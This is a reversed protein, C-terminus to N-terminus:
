DQDSRALGKANTQRTEAKRGMGQDVPNISEHTENELREADQEIKVCVRQYMEIINMWVPTSPCAEVYGKVFQRIWSGSRGVMQGVNEYALMRSQVRYEERRVLATAATRAELALASASNMTKDRVTKTQVNITRETLTQVALPM